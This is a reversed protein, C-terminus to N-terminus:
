HNSKNKKIVVVGHIMEQPPSPQIQMWRIKGLFNLTPSKAHLLEPAPTNTNPFSDGHMATSVIPGSTSGGLLCCAATCSNLEGLVMANPVIKNQHASFIARNQAM